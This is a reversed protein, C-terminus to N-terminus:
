LGYNRSLFFHGGGSGSHLRGLGGQSMMPTLIAFIRRKAGSISLIRLFEVTKPDLIAYIRRKAGYISLIWTSKM